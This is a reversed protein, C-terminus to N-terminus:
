ELKKTPSFIIIRGTGIGTNVNFEDNFEETAKKHNNRISKNYSNDLYYCKNMEPLKSIINRNLRNDWIYLVTIKEKFRKEMDIISNIKELCPKCWTANFCVLTYKTSSLSDKLHQFSIPYLITTDVSISAPTAKLCINILTSSTILLLIKKMFFYLFYAENLPM